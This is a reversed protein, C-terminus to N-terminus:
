VQMAAFSTASRPPEFGCRAPYVTRGTRNTYTAVVNIVYTSDMVYVRRDTQIPAAPDPEPITYKDATPETWTPTTSAPQLSPQRLPELRTCAIVILSVLVLLGLRTCTLGKSCTLWSVFERRALRRAEV